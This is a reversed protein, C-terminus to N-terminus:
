HGAAKGQLYDEFVRTCLENLSIGQAIAAARMSEAITPTTLLQLRQSKTERVLRYGTPVSYGGQPKPQTSKPTPQKKQTGKKQAPKQSAQIPQEQTTQSQTPQEQTPHEKTQRTEPVTDEQGSIFYGTPTTFNKSRKSKTEM